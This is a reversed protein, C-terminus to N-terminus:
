LKKRPPQPGRPDMCDKRTCKVTELLDTKQTLRIIEDKAENLLRNVRNTEQEADSLKDALERRRDIHKDVADNLESIRERAQNLESHLLEVESKRAEIKAKEVDVRRLEADAEKQLAEAEKVRRTQKYYAISGILGLISSGGLIYTLTQYIADM